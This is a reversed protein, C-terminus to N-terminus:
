HQHADADRKQNRALSSELAGLIPCDELPKADRSCADILGSLADSMTKLARIKAELQLKKEVAVRYVDDCCARDSGRLELLERIEGLSFGCKQAHRVFGLRRAADEAYLRYGAANRTAPALLGEREYFRIADATMDARAALQGITLM